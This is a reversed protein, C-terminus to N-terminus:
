SLKRFVQNLMQCLLHAATCPKAADCFAVVHEWLGPDWVRSARARDPSGQAPGPKWHSSNKCKIIFWQQNPERTMVAAQPPHNTLGVAHLSAYKCWHLTPGMIKWYSGSESVHLHQQKARFWGQARIERASCIWLSRCHEWPPGKM